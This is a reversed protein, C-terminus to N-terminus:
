LYFTVQTFTTLWVLVSTISDSPVWPVLVALYGTIALGYGVSVAQAALYWLMLRERTARYELGAWILMALMLGVAMSGVVGFRLDDVVMEGPTIAAIGLMSTSTTRLRLYYTTAASPRISFALAAGPTSRGALAVRDGTVDRNWGGAGDPSYLALDDVYSPWARLVLTGDGPEPQVTLKLWFASDTYGGVLIDGMPRFDRAVVDQIGLDAGPDELMERHIIRDAALAPAVLLLLALLWAVIRALRSIRAAPSPQAKLMEVDPAALVGPDLADDLKGVRQVGSAGAVLGMRGLCALRRLESKGTAGIRSQSPM